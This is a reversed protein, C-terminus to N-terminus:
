KLRKNNRIKREKKKNKPKWEAGTSKHSFTHWKSMPIRKHKKLDEERAFFYAGFIGGMIGGLIGGLIGGFIYGLFGWFVCVCVYKVSKFQHIQWVHTDLEEKTEFCAPLTRMNPGFTSKCNFFCCNRKEDVLFNKLKQHIYHNDRFNRFYNNFVM